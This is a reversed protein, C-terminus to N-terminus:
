KRCVDIKKGKRIAREFWYRAIALVAWVINVAFLLYLVVIKNSEGAAYAHRGGGGMVFSLGYWTMIIALAGFDAGLALVFRKGGSIKHAHLVVLYILLTVLAWVEKPDWSWFRGWSFDAWRAGLIIGATLFLVASRIMTAVVPAVRRAYSPEFEQADESKVENLITEAVNESKRSEKRARREERRRERRSLTARSPPEVGVNQANLRGYRGFIYSALSTLAVVWAIAGLAYSVIIAIVHITLWFNSRLVAVLPRINPNFEVSNFYASAAVLLAIISSATLFAKRQAVESWLSGVNSAGEDRKWVSKPFCILTATAVIFRPASWVVFGFTALVACSDLAGQMAFANSLAQVVAHFAGSKFTQGASWFRFAVFFCALILLARPVFMARAIKRDDPEVVRWPFATARWANAFPRAWVPALAYGIAIAAILFALLVVTEFMNAVPAWGTVYARVAGGLFAVVCSAGLFALGLSFFTREELQSVDRKGLRATLERLYSLAFAVVAFLCAVWNWYFANLRYYFLEANLKNSAPYNTKRLFEDRAKDDLIETKALEARRLDSRAALERLSSAFADLKEEFRRARNTGDDDLYAEAAELFADVPARSLKSAQSTKRLADVFGDFPSITEVDRVDAEERAKAEPDVFRAYTSDSGWLATQLPVWPSDQSETARFLSKRVVPAIALTKASESTLTLCALEINDVVEQFSSVVRQIEQRYELSYKESAIIDDRHTKLEDLASSTAVLLKEFLEGSQAVPYKEYVGSLVAIQRALMLTERGQSDNSIPTTQRLVYNKDNFPSEKRLARDERPLLREIKKSSADLQALPSISPSHFGGMSTPAEGYLIKDLYVRPRTSSTQTPAFSVSRVSALNQELKELRKLVDAQSADRKSRFAEVVTKNSGKELRELEEPAIRGKKADREKRSLHLVNESVAGKPDDLFPVYDWIEPEVLWSFLLEAASFRRKGNPFVQRLRKAIKQQRELTKAAVERYWSERESRKSEVDKDKSDSSNEKAEKEVDALFEELTPFNIPDKGELRKLTSEPISFTPTNSGSVDRVLIEAFTNLPQIRGGDYVPLLRWTTWDIKESTSDQSAKLKADEARAVGALIALAPFVCVSAALILLSVRGSRANTTEPAVMDSVFNPETVRNNKRSRRYVLMATGWVVFLCGLYKMGRGPDDNLSIITCYLTERPTSEGPLLRGKVVSDFEADGPKFPGRFSDQYAWYVKRSGPSRLVGPRNMQILVDKENHQVIGAAQEERTMGVPLVRTLSAFSAATTSGPEYTPTFKKVYLAVGLAIERDVLRITARRRTSVVRRTLYKMQEQSVSELPISRLWFTEQVDDLTARVKVKGYFENAQDKQFEGSALRAGFEDHFTAQKVTFAVLRANKKASSEDDSKQTFVAVSAAQFTASAADLPSIELTGTTVNGIGDAYRYVVQADQTQMLELKPETLAENWKRGYETDSGGAEKLWLAGYVRGNEPYRNREALDSFLAVDCVEGEPAMLKVLASWGQLEEVGPLLTPSSEFGVVRWGSDGLKSTEELREVDNLRETTQTKMKELTECFERSTPTASELQAWTTALYNLIRKQEYERRIQAFDDLRGAGDPDTASDASDALKDSLTRLEDNLAVLAERTTVQLPKVNSADATAGDNAEIESFDRERELILRRDIEEIQARLLDTQEDLAGYRSLTTLDELPIACRKGDVLLVVVDTQNPEPATSKLANAEANSDALEYVVRLGETFSRRAARRSIATPDDSTESSDFPFKLELEQRTTEGSSREFLGEIKLPLVPQYDAYTAYDLIELKFGGSDYLVGPKAQRALRAAYYAARQSASSASKALDQFFNGEPKTNLIPAAVKERWRTASAYDSWNLPGGSFPVDIKSSLNDDSTEFADIQVDFLRSDVDIAKETAVGEAITARAKSSCRATTWCGVLLLLVGLHATYFPILRREIQLKRRLTGDKGVNEYRVFRPIRALASCLINVALLGILLYFWKAAYVLYQAVPTGMERELFTALGMAVALLAMLVIGVSISGCFKVVSSLRDELSRKSASM